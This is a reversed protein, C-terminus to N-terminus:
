QKLNVSQRYLDDAFKIVRLNSIVSANLRLVQDVQQFVSVNAKELNGQRFSDKTEIKTPSGSEPTPVLKNGGISKLGDPNNFAVLQLKGLQQPTDQDKIKVKVTGDPLIMLKDYNAPLKIGEGILDGRQSVLFGESNKGFSGDRTYAVQGDPQTVPIYGQGNIGVDLDRTTIVLAGPSSDVRTTGELRGDPTLYQDFRKAKYGPTNLNAINQTIQDLVAFQQTGNDAAIKMIHQLM